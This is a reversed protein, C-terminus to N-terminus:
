LQKNKYPFKGLCALGREALGTQKRGITPAARPAKPDALAPGRRLLPGELQGQVRDGGVEVLREPAEEPRLLARPTKKASCTM